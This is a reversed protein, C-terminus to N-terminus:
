NRLMDNNDTKDSNLVSLLSLLSMEAVHNVKGLFTSMTRFKNINM